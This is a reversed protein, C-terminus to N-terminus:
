SSSAERKPRRKTATRKAHKSQPEPPKGTALAAKLADAVPLPYLSLPRSKDGPNVASNDVPNKRAGHQSM